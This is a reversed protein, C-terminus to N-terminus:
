RTCLRVKELDEDLNREIERNVVVDIMSQPKGCVALYCEKLHELYDTDPDGNSLQYNVEEDWDIRLRRLLWRQQEESLEINIMQKM